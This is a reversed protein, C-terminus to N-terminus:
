RLLPGHLLVPGGGLFCRLAFILVLVGAALWVLSIIKPDNMEFIALVRLVIFLFLAILLAFIVLDFLCDLLGM